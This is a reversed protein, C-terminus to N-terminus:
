ATECLTSTKRAFCRKAGKMKDSRSGTVTEIVEDLGTERLVKRARYRDKVRSLIRERNRQYYARDYAKREELHSKRYERCKATNAAKDYSLKRQELIRERNQLYWERRREPYQKKSRKEPHERRYQTQRANRYASDAGKHYKQGTSDEFLWYDRENTETYETTTITGWCCDKYPCSFCDPFTCRKPKTKM